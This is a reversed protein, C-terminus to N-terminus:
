KLSSEWEDVLSNIGILNERLQQLWAKVAALQDVADFQGSSYAYQGKCEM